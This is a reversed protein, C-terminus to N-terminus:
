VRERCSARGIEQFRPIARWVKLYTDMVVDEGDNEGVLRCAVRYLLPRHEEFLRAFAEVDGARALELLAETAGGAQPEGDGDAAPSQRRVADRDSATPADAGQGDGSRSVIHRGHKNM